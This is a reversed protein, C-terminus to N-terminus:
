LPGALQSLDCEKPSKDLRLGKFVGARLLGDKTIEQYRVRCVIKPFTWRFKREIEIPEKFPSRESPEILKLIELITDIDFGSGVRGIYRLVKGDYVGLLLSGFLGERSGEGETYGCIVADVENSRKIKLWYSSRRGMLYPSTKEKAMIGEFGLRLAHFFLKKGEEFGESLILGEPLSGILNERRIVLPTNLLSKGNLYLLDFAIYTAPLSESLLRIREPRGSQERKQLLNFDPVGNRLVVLEGDIVMSGRNLRIGRLEPYRYTIDKLRRNQLRIGKRDLFAICRTGDWKLEFIHRDSDFPRSPMALMPHIARPVPM